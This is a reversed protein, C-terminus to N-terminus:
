PQVEVVFLSDLTPPIQIEALVARNEPKDLATLTYAMFKEGVQAGHLALSISKPDLNTVRAKAMVTKCGIAAFAALFRAKRLVIRAQM